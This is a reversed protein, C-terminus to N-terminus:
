GCFRSDLGGLSRSALKSTVGPEPWTVAGGPREPPSRSRGIAGEVPEGVGEGAAVRVAQQDHEQERRCEAPPRQVRERGAVALRHDGSVQDAGAAGRPVRRDEPQRHGRGVRDGHEREAQDGQGGGLVDEGLLEVRPQADERPEQDDADAEVTIRERKWRQRASLALRRPLALVARRRAVCWSARCWSWWWSGRRPGIM